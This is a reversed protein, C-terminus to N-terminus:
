KSHAHFVPLWYVVRGFIASRDTYFGSVAQLFCNNPRVPMAIPYNTTTRRLLVLAGV